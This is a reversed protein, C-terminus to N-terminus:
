LVRLLVAFASSGYVGVPHGGRVYYFARYKGAAPILPIAVLNSSDDGGDTGGELVYVVNSASQSAAPWSFELVRGALAGKDPTLTKYASSTALTFKNHTGDNAIAQGM